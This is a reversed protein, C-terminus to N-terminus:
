PSLLDSRFKPSGQNFSIRVGINNAKNALFIKSKNASEFPNIYKSM